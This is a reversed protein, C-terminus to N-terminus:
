LDARSPLTYSPVPPAPPPADAAPPPAAPARSGGGAAAHGTAGPKATPAPASPPSLTAPAGNRKGGPASGRQSPTVMVEDLSWMAKGIRCGTGRVESLPAGAREIVRRYDRCPTSPERYYTREIVLTGQSGTDPNRLAIEVDIKRTELAENIAITLYTQDGPDESLVAGGAGRAPLLLALFALALLPPSRRPHAASPPPFLTM